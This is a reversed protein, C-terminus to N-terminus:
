MNYITSLNSLTINIHQQRLTCVHLHVCIYLQCRFWLLKSLSHFHSSSWISMKLGFAVHGDYSLIGCCKLAVGHGREDNQQHIVIVENCYHNNM